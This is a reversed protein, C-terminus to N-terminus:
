NTGNLSYATRLFIDLGATLVNEDFDFCENHHGAALNTGIMFYGSQGGNKQVKQMFHAYDECAGFDVEKCILEKQIYPSKQAEKQVLDTIFKSSNGGSTGGTKKISYSVSYIKAIGEIIDLCQKKMFSNLETTEGRTECALYGNPAIVNRGEGAKLVGVNIRTVGDSHRTIAHMQLAATAAALLANSGNQPEGSAHASKGKFYVDFKSTSLFKNVGCIIEGNKKAQFGIHAGILYDVDDVIGTPEMGVAGRCGEEASQFIFKFKGKFDKINESIIKALFLGITTHGDHGCAHTIGEIDSYFGDHFPKHTTRKNETVDVGDIDFRFATTPGEKGTDIIGLVGTLGDEMADLYLLEEPSLLTKAREIANQMQENTGLGQRKDAQVIEHGMQLTYHYKKLLHAIKASTFFTFWGSEPHSHFLRRMTIMENKNAEVKQGITDM